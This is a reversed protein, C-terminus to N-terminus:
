CSPIKTKMERDATWGGVAYAWGGVAYAWGPIMSDTSGLTPIAHLLQSLTTLFGM